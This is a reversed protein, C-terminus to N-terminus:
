VHSLETLAATWIHPADPGDQIQTYYESPPWVPLSSQQFARDSAHNLHFVPHPHSHIRVLQLKCDVGYFFGRLM